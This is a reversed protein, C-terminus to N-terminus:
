PTVSEELIAIRVEHPAVEDGGFYPYLKYGTGIYGSCHRPISDIYNSAKFYYNGSTATISCDVTQKLAVPGLTKTVRIGNVYAYAYLILANGNWSWGLRASNQQHETGCDSFGILKNVDRQNEPNISTYIASSDFTIHAIIEPKNMIQLASQDAYHNGKQIIYTILSDTHQIAPEETQEAQKNCSVIFLSIAIFLYILGKM